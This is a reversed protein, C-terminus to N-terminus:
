LGSGMVVAARGLAAGGLPVWGLWGAGDFHNHYLGGDTGQVILDLAGARGALAPAAVTAGPLAIWGSWGGGGLRNHYIGGDTGRVVVDVTGDTHVALAPPDLTAGGLPTWDSWATHFRTHYLGGEIGTVVLHLTGDGATGIAPAALAAGGVAPAIWTTGDVSRLHRLSADSLRAILDLGLLGNPAATLAIPRPAGPSVALLTEWGGWASGDFTNRYVGADTGVVFLDRRSGRDVLTPAAETAGALGSWGSWADGAFHSVYIGQDLGRVALDLTGDGPTALAPDDGAGGGVPAWGSWGGDGLRNHYLGQDTGRVVVDVPGVGVLPAVLRYLRSDATGVYLRGNLTGVSRAEPPAVAVPTWSLLDRTRLVAGSTTLVFLTSGSVTFDYIGFPLPSTVQQGDFVLLPGAAGQLLQYARYILRGAFEVPHWGTAPPTPLLSPGDSWTAGDFVLSSPAPTLGNAGQLYLKGQYVGPFYFRSFGPARRMETWTAGGDLSRLAVAFGEIHAGAIWLDSGTFTAIDFIHVLNFGPQDSWPAGAAYYIPQNHPDIAPAYLREGIARYTYIAETESLWHDRFAGVTPDWSTVWIPGTNNNWDGYGVYLQGRWGVLTHLTRGVATPQAAARPNVGLLEFDAAVGITFRDTFSGGASSVFEASLETASVVVRLFGHTPNANVGMWRAFYGAEPDQPDVAYLGQGFAGTIVFVPGSGRAYRGAAGDGTVCASEFRNVVACVLQKSRQYGHDHGQLVLNVRKALLLDMLPAGIECSKVGMTICVKHMGVVVWPLGAARAGDIRQALWDYHPSGPVYDYAEGGVRLNPAILIVRVLGAVDFFYEAGYRGTSAMRDPLCAAFSDIFGNPRLDDEHNGAVLQFPFASGLQSTILGCWASEAGAAGYSLDGLALHFAAGAGALATLSAVSDATAGIDGAATFTVAAPQAAAGTPVVAPIVAAMLWLALVSVRPRM